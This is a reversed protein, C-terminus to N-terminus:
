RVARRLEQLREPWRLDVYRWWPDEVAPDTLLRDVHRAAGEREGAVFQLAAEAIGASQARPRIAAAHRYATAADDSRGLVVLARATFLHSLYLAEEDGTLDRVAAWLRFAEDADGLYLTTLGLRLTADAALAEDQRAAEFAEAAQNLWRRASDASEPLARDRWARSAVGQASLWRQVLVDRSVGWAFAVVPRTRVSERLGDHWRDLKLGALRAVTSM